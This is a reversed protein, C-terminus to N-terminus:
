PSADHLRERKNAVETGYEEVIIAHKEIQNMRQNQEEEGTVETTQDIARERLTDVARELAQLRSRALRVDRAVADSSTAGSAATRSVSSVPGRGLTACLQSVQLEAALLGELSLDALPQNAETGGSSALRSSPAARARLPVSMLHSIPHPACSFPLAPIVLSLSSHHRQDSTADHRTTHMQQRRAFAARAPRAPCNQLAKEATQSRSGNWCRREVNACVNVRM